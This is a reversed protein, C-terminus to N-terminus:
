VQPVHGHAGLNPCMAMGGLHPACPVLKYLGLVYSWIM